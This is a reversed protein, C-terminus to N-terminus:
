SDLDLIINYIRQLTMFAQARTYPIDSTITSVPEPAPVLEEQESVLCSIDAVPGPSLVVYPQQPAIEQIIGTPEAKTFLSLFLHTAATEADIGQPLSDAIALARSALALPSQWLEAMDTLQLQQRELLRSTNIKGAIDCLNSISAAMEEATINQEYDYRFCLPIIQTASAQELMPPLMSSAVLEAPYDENYGLLDHLRAAYCFSPVMQDLPTYTVGMSENYAHVVQNAGAYIGWHYINQPSSGFFLIDGIELQEIEFVATNEAALRDSNIRLEFDLGAQSFVWWVFGGCDFAYPGSGQYAYPYGLYEEATNVIDEGTVAYAPIAGGLFITAAIIVIIMLLSATVSLSKTERFYRYLINASFPSGALSSKDKSQIKNM